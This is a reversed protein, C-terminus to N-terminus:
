RAGYSLAGLWLLGFTRRTYGDNRGLAIEVGLLLADAIVMRRDRGDLLAIFDDGAASDAPLHRLDGVVFRFDLNRLADPDAHDLARQALHQGPRGLGRVVLVANEISSKGRQFTQDIESTMRIPMNNAMGLM